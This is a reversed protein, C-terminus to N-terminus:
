DRIRQKGMEIMAKKSYYASTRCEVNQLLRLSLGRYNLGLLVEAFECLILDEMESFTGSRGAVAGVISEFVDEGDHKPPRVIHVVTEVVKDYSKNKVWIRVLAALMQLSYPNLQLARDFSRLAHDDKSLNSYATGLGFLAKDNNELMALSARFYGQAVSYHKKANSEFGLLSYAQATESISISRALCLCSEKQKNLMSYYNGIVVWTTHHNPHSLMLEKALLGLLNENKARWLLTSYTDMESVMCANSGRVLRFISVAESEDGFRAVEAAVKAVYLAGSGKLSFYNRHVPWLSFRGAAAHRISSCIHLRQRTPLPAEDAGALLTRQAAKVARRARFLDMHYNAVPDDDCGPAPEQECDEAFLAEAAGLLPSRRMSLRHMEAGTKSHGKKIYLDGLVNHFFEADDKDVFFGALWAWSSEDSQTEGNLILNLCFIALSYKKQRRHALASYFLATPTNINKLARVCQELEDQEYLILGMLVANERVDMPLDAALFAATDYDRYRFCKEIRERLRFVM